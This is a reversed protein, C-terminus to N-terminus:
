DGLDVYSTVMRGRITASFHVQGPNNKKARITKRPNNKQGTGSQKESVVDAFLPRPESQEIAAPHRDREGSEGV